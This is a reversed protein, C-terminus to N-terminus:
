NCYFKPLHEKTLLSKFYCPQTTPIANLRYFDSHHSAQMTIHRPWPASKCIAWSIGSGSVIEQELLDLNTKAEQNQREPAREGPYDLVFDSLATFHNHTHTHTQTLATLHRWHRLLTPQTFPRVDLWLFDTGNTGFTRKQFIYLFYLPPLWSISIWKSIAM